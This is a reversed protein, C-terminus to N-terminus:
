NNATEHHLALINEHGYTTINGLIKKEIKEATKSCM